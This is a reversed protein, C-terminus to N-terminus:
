AGVRLRSVWSSLRRRYTADTARWGLAQLANRSFEPAVRLNMSGAVAAVRLAVEDAADGWAVAWGLATVFRKPPPAVFDGIGLLMRVESQPPLVAPFSLAAIRGAQRTRLIRARAHAALTPRSVPEGLAAQVALEVPWVGQTLEVLRAVPGGGCRPTVELVSAGDAGLVLEVHLVTDRLGLRRVTTEVVQWVVRDDHTSPMAEEHTSFFPADVCSKDSVGLAVFEDGIMIANSALTPGAILSEVLVGPRHSDAWRAREALAYAWALDQVRHVATVGMGGALDRPKLVVPLGLMHAAETAEGVSCVLHAAPTAIGSDRLANRLAWKDRCTEVIRPAPGRLGLREVVRATLRLCEEHVTIVADVPRERALDLVANIALDHRAPDVLLLREIVAAARRRDWQWWPARRRLVVLDCDPRKAKLRELQDLSEANSERDAQVVLVRPM